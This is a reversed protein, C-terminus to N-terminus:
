ANKSTKYCGSHEFFNEGLIKRPSALRSVISGLMELKLSKEKTYPESIKQIQVKQIDEIQLVWMKFVITFVIRFIRQVSKNMQVAGPSKLCFLIFSKASGQNSTGFLAESLCLYFAVICVTFIFFIRLHESAKHKEQALICIHTQLCERM